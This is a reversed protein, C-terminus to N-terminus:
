IRTMHYTYTVTAIASFSTIKHHTDLEDHEVIARLTRAEIPLVFSVRADDVGFRKGIVRQEQVDSMKSM